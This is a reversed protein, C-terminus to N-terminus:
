VFEIREGKKLFVFAKKGGGKFGKKASKSRRRTVLKKSIAVMNVKIPVVKYIENIAQKVDTKTARKDVNFIYANTVDSLIAAKETIHASKIVWSVDKASTIAIPNAVKKSTTKKVVKKEIKKEVVKPKEEKKTKSFLAM